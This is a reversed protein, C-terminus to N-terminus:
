RTVGPAARGHYQRRRDRFRARTQRKAACGQGRRTTGVGDRVPGAQGAGPIAHQSRRRCADRHGRSAEQELRGARLAGRCEGDGTRLEIEINRREAKRRRAVGTIAYGQLSVASPRNSVARREAEGARQTPGSNRRDIRDCEADSGGCSGDRDRTGM